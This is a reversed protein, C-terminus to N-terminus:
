GQPVTIAPALILHDGAQSPSLDHWIQFTAQHRVHCGQSLPSFDTDKRPHETFAAVKGNKVFVLLNIGDSTKIDSYREADWEFGLKRRVQENTTYPGFVCMRQWGVPGILGLNVVVTSSPAQLLKDLATSIAPDGRQWLSCGALTATLGVLAVLAKQKM